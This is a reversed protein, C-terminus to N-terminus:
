DHRQVKLDALRPGDTVLSLRNNVRDSLAREFARAGAKSEIPGWEAILKDLEENIIILTKMEALREPTIIYGRKIQFLWCYFRDWLKRM